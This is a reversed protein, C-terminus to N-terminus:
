TSASKALVWDLAENLDRFVRIGREGMTERLIEFMRALGYELDSSVLMARRSNPSFITTQALKRVDEGSLDVRIVQRFDMLQSFSPDFDPDNRLNRQHALGDALTVVGSVTSIVLRREKDINYSAPM